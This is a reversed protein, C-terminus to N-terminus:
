HEKNPPPTSVDDKVLINHTTVDASAHSEKQVSSFVVTLADDLPSSETDDINHSDIMDYSPQHNDYIPTHLSTQAAYRVTNACEPRYMFDEDYPVTNISPHPPAQPQLYFNFLEDMIQVPSDGVSIAINSQETVNPDENFYDLSINNYSEM